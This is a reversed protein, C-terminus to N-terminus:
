YTVPKAAVSFACHDYLVTGDTHRKPQRINDRVRTVMPHVRDPKVPVVGALPVSSRPPSNSMSQSSPKTELVINPPLIHKLENAQFEDVTGQHHSPAYSHAMPASPVPLFIPHVSPLAIPTYSIHSFPFYMRMSFLMELFIFVILQFTYVSTVKIFLVIGWSCVNHLASNLNTNTIYGLIQGVHAGLSAFPLIIQNYQM